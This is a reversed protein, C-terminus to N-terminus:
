TGAVCCRRVSPTLTGTLLQRQGGEGDATMLIRRVRARTWLMIEASYLGGGRLAESLPVAQAVDDIV